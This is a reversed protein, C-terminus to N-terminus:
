VDLSGQDPHVLPPMAELMADLRETDAPGWDRDREGTPSFRLHLEDLTSRDVCIRFPGLYVGGHDMQEEILSYLFCLPKEWDAWGESRDVEFTAYEARHKQIVLWPDLSIDISVRGDVRAPYEWGIGEFSNSRQTEPDWVYGERQELPTADYAIAVACTTLHLKPKRPCACTNMVEPLPVRPTDHVTMGSMM